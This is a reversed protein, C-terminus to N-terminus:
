VFLPYGKINGSGFNKQSLQLPKVEFNELLQVNGIIEYRIGANYKEIFLEVLEHVYELLLRGSTRCSM